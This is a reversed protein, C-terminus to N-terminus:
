LPLSWGRPLFWEGKSFPFLQAFACATVTAAPSHWSKGMPRTLFRTVSQYQQSGMYILAVGAGWVPGVAAGKRQKNKQKIKWVNSWGRPPQPCILLIWQSGLIPSAQPKERLSSGNGAQHGGTLLYLQMKKEWTQRFTVKGNKGAISVWDGILATVKVQAKRGLVFLFFLLLSFLSAPHPRTEGTNLTLFFFFYIWPIFGGKDGSIYGGQIWGRSWLQKFGRLM